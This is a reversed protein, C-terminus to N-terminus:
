LRVQERMWTEICFRHFIHDCPLRMSTNRNNIDIVSLCISCYVVENRAENIADIQPAIQHTQLDPGMRAGIPSTESNLLPLTVDDSTTIQLTEPIPRHKDEYYRTIFDGRQRNHTPCYNPSLVDCPLGANRLWAWQCSRHVKANCGDHDCTIQGKYIANCCFEGFPNGFSCTRGEEMGWACVPSARTDQVRLCEEQLNNQASNREVDNMTISTNNTGQRLLIFKCFLSNLYSPIEKSIVSISVRDIESNCGVEVRSDLSALNGRGHCNQTMDNPVPSENSNLLPVPSIDSTFVYSPNPALRALINQPIPENRTRYVWRIYDGRKVSHDPCYVDEMIDRPLRAKELWRWQCLRHAYATCGDHSCRM